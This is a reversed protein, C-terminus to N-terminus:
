AARGEGAVGQGARDADLRAARNEGSAGGQHPLESRLEIKTHFHGASEGRVKLESSSLEDLLDSAIVFHLLIQGDIESEDGSLGDAARAPSVLYPERFIELVKRTRNWNRTGDWGSVCSPM